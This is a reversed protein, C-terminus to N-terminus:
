ITAYVDCLMCKTICPIYIPKNNKYMKPICFCQFMYIPNSSYIFIYIPTHPYSIYTNMNLACAFAVCIFVYIVYVITQPHQTHKQPHTHPFCLLICLSYPLPIHSPNHKTAHSPMPHLTKPRVPSPHKHTDTLTQNHTLKQTRTQQTLSLPFPFKVRPCLFM